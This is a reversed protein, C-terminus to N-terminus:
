LMGQDIFSYYGIDAVILAGVENHRDLVLQLRRQPLEKATAPDLRADDATLHGIVRDVVRELLELIALAAAALRREDATRENM